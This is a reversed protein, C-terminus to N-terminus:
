LPSKRSKILISPNGGVVSYQPFNRSLLCCAGVITGKKVFRGPTMTVNRGIWVDDEIITKKRNTTGQFIMPVDIRDFSHNSSFIYCNPGM